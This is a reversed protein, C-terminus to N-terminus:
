WRGREVRDVIETPPIVEVFAPRALFIPEMEVIVDDAGMDPVTEARTVDDVFIRILIVSLHRAM